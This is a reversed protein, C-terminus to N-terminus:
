QAVASVVESFPGSGVSNRALVRFYYTRGSYLNDIVTSFSASSLLKRSSSGSFSPHESYELEYQTISQGGNSSPTQSGYPTPCELITTGDNRCSIGHHPTLPRLWSVEIRGVVEKSATAQLSHVRGPVQLKPKADTPTSTQFQSQGASNFATVRVYYSKTASLLEITYSRVTPGVIIYGRNPPLSSSGFTPHVDWEVLYKTIADGGSSLPLDWGVTLMTDSTVGLRVNSPPSPRQHPNLSSPTSMQSLGYGQSNRAKVRVFYFTGTSLGVIDTFFPSGRSLNSVEISQVNTFASNTSWEVLYGTISDGGNDSPSGFMLRLSTASSVSLSVGTPASPVVKPAMPEPAQMPLSYGESNRASVRGYYELGKVLGGFSPMVLSGSCSSYTQGSNLLTVSVQPTGQNGYTVLSNTHLRLQYDSGISRADDLFTVRWIFGNKDNPGDRDVQVGSRIASSLDELKSQLSGSQHEAEYPCLDQNYQCHVRSTLPTGRGGYYRTTSVQVGDSGTFPDSLVAGTGTVSVVQYYHFLTSQGSFRLRDGPFLIEEINVSPITSITDLGATTSFTPILEEHIGTENSALAVSDYPIESTITTFGDVELEITFSGGSIVGAGDVTTEIKWETRKNSPPCQFDQVIPSDFSDTPDLEVRYFLIESGGNSDPPDFNVLLSDSFGSNVNLTVQRPSGPTQLTPTISQPAPILHTSMGHLPSKASVTVFYEKGTELGTIQYSETTSSLLGSSGYDFPMEGPNAATEKTNQSDLANNGNYVLVNANNDTSTVHALDVVLADVNGLNGKFRIDYHHVLNNNETGIASQDVTDNQTVEVEGITSLQELVNKIYTADAHVPIFCTWGSGMFKVRYFGSLSGTGVIQLYQTEEMGGSRQGDQTTSVAIYPSGLDGNAMVSGVLSVQDGDNISRDPNNGFTISWQYGKALATRTVQVDSLLSSDDSEDWGLNLLERRVLDAPANWPLSSTIKKLTPSPSFGLTFTTESLISNYQLRVVQVEPRKEKSWWEVVYGDVPYGGNLMPSAWSITAETIPFESSTLTSLVAAKPPNPPGSPVVSVVSSASGAGVSNVAVLKIYYREGAVLEPTSPVFDFVFQKGSAPIVQPLTADLVLENSASFDESVDYIVVFQLIEQGGNRIPWDFLLQVGNQGLVLASMLFPADPVQDVPVTPPSVAWNTNDKPNGSPYIAQVEVDNAVSVRVHYSESSSLGCIEYRFPSPGDMPIACSGYRLSSCSASNGQANTFLDSFDWQVTFSTFPTGYIPPDFIVELCTGSLADVQVNVPVTPIGRPIAAIVDSYDSNGRSNKVKGRISYEIGSTLGNIYMCRDCNKISIDLAADSPLLHHVPAALPMVNNGVVSMLSVTWEYGGTWALLLGDRITDGDVYQKSVFSDTDSALTFSEELGDYASSVRFWQNGIKILQNAVIGKSKFNCPSCSSSCHVTSTGIVVDICANSVEQSAFTREVGATIIGPLNELAVRVDYATARASLPSSIFGDYEIHFYGGLPYMHASAGHSTRIIQTSYDPYHSTKVLNGIFASNAGLEFSVESISDGCAPRGVDSTSCSRPIDFSLHLSNRSALSGKATESVAVVGGLGTLQSINASLLEADGLNPDMFTIAFTRGGEADIPSVLDVNVNSIGSLDQLATKIEEASADFPLEATSETGFILSYSGGLENGKVVETVAINSGKGTLSNSAHLLPVDGNDDIFTVFWTYGGQGDVESRTVDVNGIGYIGSIADEMEDATADHAIPDSSDLYFSGGIVNGDMVTNAQCNVLTSVEPVHNCVFLPVNGDDTGYTITFTIGNNATELSQTVRAETITMPLSSVLASSIQTSSSAESAGPLIDGGDYASVVRANAFAGPIEDIHKLVNDHFARVPQCSGMVSVAFNSDQAPQFGVDTDENTHMVNGDFYIVHRYGFFRTVALSTSSDGVFAKDIV